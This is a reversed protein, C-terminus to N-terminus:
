PTLEPIQFSNDQWFTVTSARDIQARLQYLDFKHAGLLQYCSKRKPESQTSETSCKQTSYM